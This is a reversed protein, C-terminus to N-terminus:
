EQQGYFANVLDVFFQAGQRLTRKQTKYDMHYLGFRMSFGLAWEFNDLFSWYYYGRCDVGEEIAKAVAYIYRKITLDRLKDPDKDDALGHETIIIPKGVKALRKLARYIGEPYSVYGMDTTMNRKEPRVGVEVLPWQFLNFFVNYHSYYNLGIIDIAGKGLPNSYNLEIFFPIHVEMHGTEFYQLILENYFLDAIACIEKAIFSDAPVPDFQHYEKVFIIQSEKGNPLSKLKHYINTHAIMFNRLVNAMVQPINLGPPFTGAVHGGISYAMVENFTCWLKVKGSYQRFIYESFEEFWILNDAHQFEGIAQFWIPNSYHHLTIMPIIGNRLLEDIVDHYHRTAEASFVKREKNPQFRSWEVSFRYSHVGLHKMLQIDEKYRTFHECANGSKDGNKIKGDIKEWESWSNNNNGEVQHAASATGFIFNKQHQKIKSAIDTADINIQPWNWYIEPDDIIRGHSNQQKSFNAFSQLNLLYFGFIGIIFKLIVILM